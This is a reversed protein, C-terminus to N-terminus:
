FEIFSKKKLINLIVLLKQQKEKERLMLIDTDAPMKFPNEMRDNKKSIAKIILNKLLSFHCCYTTVQYLM